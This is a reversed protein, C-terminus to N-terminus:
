SRPLASNRRFSGRSYNAAVAPRRTKFLKIADLSHRSCFFPLFEARVGTRHLVRGSLEWLSHCDRANGSRVSFIGASEEFADKLSKLPSRVSVRGGRRRKTKKRQRSAARVQRPSSIGLREIRSRSIPMSDISVHARSVGRAAKNIPSIFARFRPNDRANLIRSRNAPTAAVLSLRLHRTLNQRRSNLLATCIIDIDFLLKSSKLAARCCRSASIVFVPFGLM